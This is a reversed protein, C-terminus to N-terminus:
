TSLLMHYLALHSNSMASLSYGNIAHVKAQQGLKSRLADDNLLKSLAAALASADRILVALGTIGAQNVVNVGNNLQTCVVPKGCAMAELQVLGFAESQAVSPLCFVDSANFYAAM